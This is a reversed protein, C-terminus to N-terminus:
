NRAHDSPTNSNQQRPESGPRGGLYLLGLTLGISILAASEIALIWKGGDGAPYQLLGGVLWLTAASAAAFVLLGAVLGIRLLGPHNFIRRGKGSLMVLVLAGGLLAGGQFAGGPAFGGLWLLYGAVLVLMPLVLRLASVLLLSDPLRSSPWEGQRLAWIGTIALLLVGVELFTDYGRFNLLVATVPNKVGSEPLRALVAATLGAPRAPLSVVAWVVTGLLALSLVGAVALPMKGSDKASARGSTTQFKSMRALASLILAGTLGSGLAAEALAVDPARLRVWAVAVLLGLAIFKIVARFLDHDNLSRWALLAMVLLLLWDFVQVMVLAEQDM